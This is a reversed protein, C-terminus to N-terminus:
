IVETDATRVLISYSVTPYQLTSTVATFGTKIEMVQNFRSEYSNEPAIDLNHQYNNTLLLM